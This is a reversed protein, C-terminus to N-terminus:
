TRLHGGLTSFNLLSPIIRGTNLFFVRLNVRKCRFINEFTNRRERM